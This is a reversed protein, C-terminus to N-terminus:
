LHLKPSRAQQQVWPYLKTSRAQQRGQKLKSGRARPFWRRRHGRTAGARSVSAVYLMQQLMRRFCIFYKCCVSTVYTYQCQMMHLMWIFCKCRVNSIASVNLVCMQLMRTYGTSYMWIFCKCCVNSVALDNSFYMKAVYTYLWQEMYLVFNVKAVDLYFIYLMCRFRIFCVTAVHVWRSAVGLPRKNVCLKFGARLDIGHCLPWVETTCLALGPPWSPCSAHRLV